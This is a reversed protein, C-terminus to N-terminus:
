NENSNLEVFKTLGGQIKCKSCKFYGQPEVFVFPTKCKSCNNWGKREAFRKINISLAWGKPEGIAKPEPTKLGYKERAIQILEQGQETTFCNSGAQSCDIIGEMVAILEPSGGGSNNCRYCVWLNTSTDVRFNMGSKVSGHQPHPGQYCGDGMDHLGSFSIVSSIPIDKIDDGEWTTREIKREVIKQVKMWPNFVSRFEEFEIEKIPIDKRVDYIKGSPHTSGPGVVQQGFGQLEGLHNKKDDFFVIRKGDWGKLKIYYHDRVRFSEGFASEFLAMLSKDESDDDLVGLDFVGTLVGYNGEDLYQQIDKYNYGVSNWSEEFPAKGLPKWIKEEMLKNYESGDFSKKEKSKNKWINWMGLRCFLQDRLQKPIEIM